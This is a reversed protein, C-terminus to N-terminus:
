AFARWGRWHGWAIVVLLCLTAILGIDQPVGLAVTASGGLAAWFGPIVLLWRVERWQGQLLIGITFITTPCPAVGLMPVAPYNHGALWGLAPYILVAFGICALGLISVLDNGSTLRLDPRALAAWILLLAQAVFVAAFLRAIPNISAFFLWHYGIGNVLWMAALMLLVAATAQRTNWRLLAVALVGALIAVVQWPFIAQNYRAFVEFFQDTTFPM